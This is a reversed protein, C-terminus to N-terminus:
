FHLRKDIYNKTINAEYPHSDGAFLKLREMRVNRLRNKPLM